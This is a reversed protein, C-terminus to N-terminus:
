TLFYKKPELGHLDTPITIAVRKGNLTWISEYPFDIHMNVNHHTNYKTMLDSKYFDDKSIEKYKEECEKIRANIEDITRRM